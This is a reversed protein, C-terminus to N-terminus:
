PIIPIIETKMQWMGTIETKLDKYKFSKKPFKPPLIKILPYLWM